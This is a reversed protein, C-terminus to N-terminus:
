QPCAAECALFAKCGADKKCAVLAMAVCPDPSTLLGDVCSQCGSGADIAGGGDLGECLAACQAQCTSLTCACAVM